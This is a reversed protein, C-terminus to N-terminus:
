SENLAKVMTTLEDKLQATDKYILTRRVHVDFPATSSEHKLIIVNRSLADAYGMEYFVNPNNGTIDAVIFASEELKEYLMTMVDGVYQIDDMRECRYGLHEFAERVASYVEKFEEAFPMLLLAQRKGLADRKKRKSEAYADRLLQILEADYSQVPKKRVAFAGAELAQQHVDDGHYYTIYVISVTSDSLHIREIFELTRKINLAFHVIAIDPSVGNLAALAPEESDFFEIKFGARELPFKYRDREDEDDVVIFALKKSNITRL